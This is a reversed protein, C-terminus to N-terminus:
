TMTINAQNDLPAASYFQWSHASDCTQVQGSIVKSPALVYFLLLCVSGINIAKNLDWVIVCVIGNQHYELEGVSLLPLHRYITPGM